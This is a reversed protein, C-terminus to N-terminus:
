PLLDKPKVGVKTPDLCGTAAPSQDHPVQITAVPVIESANGCQDVAVALVSYTRGDESSPGGGAREARACLTAGDPSVICDDETKGDGNLGSGPEPADEPQDSACGVVQVAVPGSCADSADVALDSTDFCVYWHNPPWLCGLSEASAVLTPPTTDQVTLVQTASVSHGCHDTATWTRALVHDGECAGDTRVEVFELNPAADCTDAAAVPAPAPVADCEVTADPPVGVLSPDETDDFTATTTCTSIDTPDAPDRVEVTITTTLGCPAVDPDLEAVVPPLAGPGAPLWGAPLVVAPDSSTYRVEVAGGSPDDVTVGDLVVDRCTGTYPGGADCTPGAVSPEGCVDTIEWVQNAGTLLRTLVVYLSRRGSGDSSPGVVMDQVGEDPPFAVTALLTATTLPEDLRFIGDGGPDCSWSLFGDGTDPCVTGKTGCGFSLGADLFIQLASPVTALSPVFTTPDYTWIGEGFDGLFVIDGDPQIYLDDGGGIPFPAHFVNPGGLPASSMGGGLDALYVVDGAPVIGIGPAMQMGFSNGTFVSPQVWTGIVGTVPDVTAIRGGAFDDDQALLLGTAPDFGLDSARSCIGFGTDAVIPTVVGGAGVDLSFIATTTSPCGFRSSMRQLYIRGTAPDIGISELPTAAANGLQSQSPHLPVASDALLVAAHGPENVVLGAHAFAACLLVLAAPAVRFSVRVM